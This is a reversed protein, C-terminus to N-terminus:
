GIRKDNDAGRNEYETIFRSVLDLRGDIKDLDPATKALLIDLDSTRVLDYLIGIIAEVDANTDSRRLRFLDGQVGAAREMLIEKRLSLEYTNDM